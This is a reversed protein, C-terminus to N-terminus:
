RERVKAQVPMDGAKAFTLTVTVADGVKLDRILNILMIHFGGPKLTAEGNAPVDIGDVHHMSMVGNQEEVMHLEAVQAADSAVKVLRDPQNSPNRITMYVAGTAGGMGMGMGTATQTLPMTGTMLPNTMEMTATMAVPYPQKGPMQQAPRAWPDTIQLGVPTTTSQVCATLLLVFGVFLVVRAHPSM